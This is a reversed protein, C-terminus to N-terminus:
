CGARRARLLCGLERGMQRLADASRHARALVIGGEIAAVIFTALEGASVEDYGGAFLKEEFASQMQRYAEQCAAALRDNTSATELAVAAIPAGGRCDSAHVHEALNAVFRQIAEAADEIGALERRVHEALERGSRMIAEATLEEKGEPFYYYLSGKPAGSVQVIQNLGTAHYGQRELLESTTNIIQERTTTM